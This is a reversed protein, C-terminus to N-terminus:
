QKASDIIEQVQDAAHELQAYVERLRNTVVPDRGNIVMRVQLSTASETLRRLQRELSEM